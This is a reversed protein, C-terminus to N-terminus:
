SSAVFRDMLAFFRIKGSEFLSLDSLIEEATQVFPSAPPAVGPEALAERAMQETWELHFQLGLVKGGGPAEILFAQQEAAKNRALQEAGPPLSYTDGHWQFAYFSDDTGFWVSGAELPEIPQWGFEKCTHRFAKGGLADALLQCGLCLGIIKKGAAVAQRLYEKEAGLWPHKEEEYAGMPGGLSVLLDFSELAPLPDGKCILCITVSHGRLDAWEQLAGPGDLPDHQLFLLRM